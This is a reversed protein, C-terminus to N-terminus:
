IGIQSLRMITLKMYMKCECIEDSLQMNYMLSATILNGCVTSYVNM